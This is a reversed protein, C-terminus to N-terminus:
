HLQKLEKLFNAANEWTEYPVNVTKIVEEYPKIDGWPGIMDRITLRLNGSGDPDLPNFSSSKTPDITIIEGKLGLKEIMEEWNQPEIVVVPESAEAMTPEGFSGVQGEGKCSPCAKGNITKQGLCAACIRM